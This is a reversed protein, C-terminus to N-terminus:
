KCKLENKIRRRNKDCTKCTRKNKLRYYTNEETFEHGKVCHTRNKNWHNFRKKSIMDRVNELDKGLFLHKPNVCPPNDCKHCVHAKTPIPGVHLMFSIRHALRTSTMAKMHTIGYGEANKCGQWEWCTSSVKVKSM